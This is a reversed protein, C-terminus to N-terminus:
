PTAWFDYFNFWQYPHEKVLEELRRAYSAAWAELQADRTKGREFRYTRPPDAVFAYSRAGVQASFTVILPCGSMAALIFPGVPFAALTGFFPVRVVRADVTRDGQM